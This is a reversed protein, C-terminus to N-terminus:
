PISSDIKLMCGNSTDTDGSARKSNPTPNSGAPKEAGCTFETPANVGATM